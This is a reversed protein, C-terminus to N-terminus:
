SQKFIHDMAVSIDEIDIREKEMRDLIERWREADRFLLPFQIAHQIESLKKLLAHIAAADDPSLDQIGSVCLNLRSSPIGVIKCAVKASINLEWLKQPIVIGNSLSALAM